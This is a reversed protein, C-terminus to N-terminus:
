SNLYLQKASALDAPFFDWFVFRGRESFTGSFSLSGLRIGYRRLGEIIHGVGGSFRELLRRPIPEYQDRNSLLSTQKTRKLYQLGQEALRVREAGASEIVARPYAPNKSRAGIKVLRDEVTRRYESSPMLYTRQCLTPEGLIRSPNPVSAEFREHPLSDSRMLDSADFGRGVVEITMTEQETDTIAALSYRDRYPSLPELFAAIKGESNM